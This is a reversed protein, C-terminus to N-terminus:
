ATSMPATRAWNARWFGVARSLRAAARCMPLARSAPPDVGALAYRGRTRKAM